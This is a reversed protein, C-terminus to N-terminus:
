FNIKQNREETVKEVHKKSGCDGIVTSLGYSSVYFYPGLKKMLFITKKLFVGCINFLRQNCAHLDAPLSRNSKNLM